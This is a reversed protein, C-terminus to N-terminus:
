EGSGTLERELRDATMGRLEVVIQRRRELERLIIGEARDAPALPDVYSPRELITTSETGDVPLWRSGAAASSGLMDGAAYAAAPATIGVSLGLVVALVVGGRGDKKTANM